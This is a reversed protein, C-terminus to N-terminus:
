SATDDSGSDASVDAPADHEDSGRLQMMVVTAAAASGVVLSTWVNVRVGFIETATDIRVLEIWLRGSTYLAVYVGFLLGRRLKPFVRPVVWILAIVVGVNWLSEYLFTPHFTPDQLYEM